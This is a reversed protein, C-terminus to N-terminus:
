KKMEQTPQSCVAACATAQGSMRRKESEEEVVRERRRESQRDSLCYSNSLNMGIPFPGRCVGNSIKRPTHTWLAHKWTDTATTGERLAESPPKRKLNVHLILTGVERCVGERDTM